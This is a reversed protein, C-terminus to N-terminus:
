LTESFQVILNGWDAGQGSTDPFTPPAIICATLVVGTITLAANDAPSGGTFIPVVLPITAVGSGNTNTDASAELVQPLGAVRFIDGARLWATTSLPAADVVLSSGTQSAGQVLAAGGGVGKITQYDIHSLDFITGNRWFTRVTALFSRDATNSVKLLYHETWTRGIQQISRINVRGSQSKSILPGPLDLETVEVPLITRPWATM